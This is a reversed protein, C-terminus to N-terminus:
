TRGICYYIIAKAIYLKNKAQKWIKNKKSKITKKCIEQGINMPLCHLIIVKKNTLKTLKKKIKLQKFKRKKKDHISNWTDTTLINSKICAIEINKFCNINKNIKREKKNLYINFKFKFIKSAEKWSNFVNNKRGIWTITKGIINGRIDIYTFIDNIIQTPHQKNDLANIVNLKNIKSLKNLTKNNGRYIVLDNFLSIIKITDKLNEGRSLQSNNKNFITTSCKLEQAAINFSLLTRTSNEEFYILIKKKIIINKKKFLFAFKIIKLYQKFYLDKFKIYKM